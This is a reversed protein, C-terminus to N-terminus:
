HNSFHYIGWVDFLYFAQNLKRLITLGHIELSIDTSLGGGM